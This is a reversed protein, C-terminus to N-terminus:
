KILKEWHPNKEYNGNVIVKDDNNDKSSNEDTIIPKFEQDFKSKKELANEELLDNELVNKTSSANIKALQKQMDAEQIKDYAAEMANIFNKHIKFEKTKEYKKKAKKFEEESSFPTLFIDVNMNIEQDFYEELKEIDLKFSQFVQAVLSKEKADLSNYFAEFLRNRELIDKRISIENADYETESLQDNEYKYVTKSIDKMHEDTQSTKDNENIGYIDALSVQDTSMGIASILREYDKRQEDLDFIDEGFPVDFVYSFNIFEDQDNIDIFEDRSDIDRFYFIKSDSKRTATPYLAM